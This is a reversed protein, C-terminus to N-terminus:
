ILIREKNDISKDKEKIYQINKTHLQICDKLFALM